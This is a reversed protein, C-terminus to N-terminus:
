GSGTRMVTMSIWLRWLLEVVSTSVPEVAAAAKFWIQQGLASCEILTPLVSFCYYKDCFFVLCPSTDIHGQVHPQTIM